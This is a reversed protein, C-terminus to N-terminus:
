EVVLCQRVDREAALARADLAMADDQGGRGAVELGEEQVAEVPTGAMGDDDELVDLQGLQPGDELEDVAPLHGDSLILDSDEELCGLGEFDLAEVWLVRRARGAQGAQAELGGRGLVCRGAESGEQDLM